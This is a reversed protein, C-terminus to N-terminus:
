DEEKFDQKQFRWLTCSLCLFKRETPYLLIGEQTVVSDIWSCGPQYEDLICHVDNYQNYFYSSQSGLSPSSGCFYSKRNKIWLEGSKHCESFWTHLLISSLNEGKSDTGAQSCYLKSGYKSSILTVWSGALWGVFWGIFPWILSITM